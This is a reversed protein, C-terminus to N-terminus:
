KPYGLEPLRDNEEIKVDVQNLLGKVKARGIVAEIASIVVDPREIQVFHGCDKVRIKLVDTSYCEVMRQLSAVFSKGKTREYVDPIIVATPLSGLWGPVTQIIGKSDDPSRDLADIAATWEATYALLWNGTAWTARAESAFKGKFAEMYPRLIVPALARLIGLRGLLQALWIPPVTTPVTKTLLRLADPSAADVYVVGCIGDPGQRLGAALENTYLAGLSHSVLVYPPCVNAAHLLALLDAATARPTRPINFNQHSYGFGPRDYTFVRAFSSANKTVQDWVPSWSNAGAELIICPANALHKPAYYRAHVLIRRGDRRLAILQGPPNRRERARLIAEIMSATAVLALPWPLIFTPFSTTRIYSFPRIASRFNFNNFLHTSININPNSLTSSTTPQLAISHEHHLQFPKCLRSSAPTYTSLTTTTSTLFSYTNIITNTTLFEYTHTNPISHRNM